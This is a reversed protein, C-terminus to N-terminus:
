QVEVVDGERLREARKRAVAQILNLTLSRARARFLSAFMSLLLPIAPPPLPPPPPPPLPLPLPLAPKLPVPQILDGQNLLSSVLANIHICRM